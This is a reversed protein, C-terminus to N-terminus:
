LPKVMVKRFKITGANYQLAIPGTPYRTDNADIANDGNLKVTIRPGQVAIEYTNWKGGAKFTPAAKVVPILSATAFAPPAPNDWIQVEYAAKSNVVKLNGVHLYVGSNANEDSSWFEVYLEFDTYSGKSLLIGAEEGAKKDAQIAGDKAAWNAKGLQVFNDLGNEGDILTVWGPGTPAPPAGACGFLTSAVVLLGAMVACIRKM